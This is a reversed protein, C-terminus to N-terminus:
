SKFLMVRRLALQALELPLRAIRAGASILERAADLMTGLQRHAEEALEQFTEPTPQSDRSAPGGVPIPGSSATALDDALEVPPWGGEADADGASTKARTADPRPALPASQESLSENPEIQEQEANAQRERLLEETQAHRKGYHVTDAAPQAASEAVKQKQKKQLSRSVNPKGSTFHDFRFSRPM